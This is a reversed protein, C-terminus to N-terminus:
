EGFEIRHSRFNGEVRRSRVVGAFLRHAIAAIPRGVHAAHHPEGRRNPGSELIAEPHERLQRGMGQEGVGDLLRGSAEVNRQGSQRPHAAFLLKRVPELFEDALQMARAGRDIERHKVGASPQHIRRQRRPGVPPQPEAVVTLFAWRTTTVAHRYMRQQPRVHAQLLFGLAVDPLGLDAGIGQRPKAIVLDVVDWHKWPRGVALHRQGRSVRHKAVGGLGAVNVEFLCQQEIRAGRDACDRRDFARAGEVEGHFGVLLALQDSM